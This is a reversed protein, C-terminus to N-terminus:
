NNPAKLAEEWEKRTMCMTVPIRSDPVQVKKCIKENSDNQAATAAPTQAEAPPTSPPTQTAAPAPTPADAAFAAVATMTLLALGAVVPLAGLSITKM